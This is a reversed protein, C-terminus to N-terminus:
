LQESVVDLKLSVFDFKILDERVDKKWILSFNTLTALPIGLEKLLEAEGGLNIDLTPEGDLVFTIYDVHEGKVRAKEVKEKAEKLIIGPQKM